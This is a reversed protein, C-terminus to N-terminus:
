VVGNGNLRAKKLRKMEIEAASIAGRRKSRAQITRERRRVWTRTRMKQVGRMIVPNMLYLLVVIQVPIAVYWFFIDSHEDVSFMRSFNQGFYGTLFTLPLFFVTVITLTKMSENQYAGIMNFILSTLDNANQGMQELSQTLILCHDYVDSLYTHALSSIEITSMVPNKPPPHGGPSPTSPHTGLPDAHHERLAQVLSAIPSVTNKLLNLESTMIYLQKPQTMDPDTMVEFELQGIYDDYAAAVPMVLDIITDIIAQCLMSADGSRRLITEPSEIRELIPKLLEIGSHETFSIVTGDATLFISVQEVSVALNRSALASKSEMYDVRAANAGGRYRQLTRYSNIGDNIPSGSQMSRGGPNPNNAPGEDFNKVERAASMPPVRDRDDMGFWKMWFSARQPAKYSDDRKDEDEEEDSDYESDSDHHEPQRLHVLKALPLVMYCHDSYWDAKTRNKTNILDEVALRHLGKHNALTKIVDSSLGNVAIWRCAVWDPRVEELFGPLTDNDLEHREMEEEAFDIVTIECRTRIAAFMDDQTDRRTDIGPEAGPQWGPLMPPHYARVTDAKAMRKRMSVNTDATRNTRVSARRDRSPGGSTSWTDAHQLHPM